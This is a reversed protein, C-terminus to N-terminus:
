FSFNHSWPRSPGFAIWPIKSSWRDKGKRAYSTNLFIDCIKSKPKKILKFSSLQKL